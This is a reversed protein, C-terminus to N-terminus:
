LIGTRVHFVHDGLCPTLTTGVWATVLLLRRTM